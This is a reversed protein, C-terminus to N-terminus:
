RNMLYTTSTRWYWSYKRFLNKITAHAEAVQAEYRAELASTNSNENLMEM